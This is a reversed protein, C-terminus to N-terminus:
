VMIAPKLHDIRAQLHAYALDLAGLQRALLANASRQGSLSTAPAIRRFRVSRISRPQLTSRVPSVASCVGGRGHWYWARGSGTFGCAAGIEVGRTSTVEPLPSFKQGAILHEGGGDEVPEQVMRMDEIDTAAAIAEAVQFFREVQPVSGPSVM